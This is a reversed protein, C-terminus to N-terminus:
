GESILGNDGALELGWSWLAAIAGPGGTTSVRAPCGRTRYRPSAGEDGERELLPSVVEGPRIDIRRPRGDEDHVVFRDSDLWDSGPTSAGTHLNRYVEAIDEINVAALQYLARISRSMVAVKEGVSLGGGRLLRNMVEAMQVVVSIGFHLGGYLFSFPDRIRAQAAEGADLRYLTLLQETRRIVWGLDGSRMTAMERELHFVMTDVYARGLIVFSNISGEQYPGPEDAVLRLQTFMSNVLGYPPYSSREARARQVARDAIVSAMGYLEDRARDLFAHRDGPSRAALKEPTPLRKLGETGGALIDRGAIPGLLDSAESVM